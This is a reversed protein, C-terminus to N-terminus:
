NQANLQAIITDYALKTVSQRTHNDCPIPTLFYLKAVPNRMRLILKMSELMTTEGAFAMNINPKGDPLPYYIAVPWITAKAEIAAQIISSKFPLTHTGDTTTGEPFLCVNDQEKLSETTIDVIRAADKRISRNIFLTGSKSVLYGFIPWSKIEIKAIFRVPVISNLAHIDTWSIHNAVFMTSQTQKDPLSGHTIIKINFCNLLVSSWWNTIALRTQKSAFPLVFTAICM